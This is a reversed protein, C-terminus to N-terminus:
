LAAARLPGIKTCDPAVSSFGKIRAHMIREQSTQSPHRRPDLYGGSAVPSVVPPSALTWDNLMNLSLDNMMCHGGCVVVGSAIGAGGRQLVAMVNSSSTRGGLRGRGDLTQHREM